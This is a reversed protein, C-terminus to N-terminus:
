SFIQKDVNIIIDFTYFIKTFHRIVLLTSIVVYIQTYYSEKTYKQIEIYYPLYQGGNNSKPFNRFNMKMEEKNIFDNESM